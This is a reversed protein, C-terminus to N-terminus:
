AAANEGSDSDTVRLVARQGGSKQTVFYVERVDQQKVCSDFTFRETLETPMDAGAIEQRLTENYFQLFDSIDSM